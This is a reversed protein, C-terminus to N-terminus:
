FSYSYPHFKYINGSQSLLGHDCYNEKMYQEAGEYTAFSIREYGLEVRMIESWKFLKKREIVFEEKEGTTGVSHILKIIRFKRM